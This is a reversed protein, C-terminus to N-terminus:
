MVIHKKYLYFMLIKKQGMIEYMMSRKVCDRAGNANLSAIRIDGMQFYFLVTENETKRAQKSESVKDKKKRKLPTKFVAQDMDMMLSDGLYVSESPSMKSLGVSVHSTDMNEDAKPENRAVVTVVLENEGHIKESAQNVEETKSLPKTDTINSTSPRPEVQSPDPVNDTLGEERVQVGNESSADQVMKKQVFM